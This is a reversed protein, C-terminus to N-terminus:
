LAERACTMLADLSERLILRRSGIKVSQLRGSSILNYLTSRGLGSYLVADPLRLTLRDKVSITPAPHRSYSKPAGDVARVSQDM